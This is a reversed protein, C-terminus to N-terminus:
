IQYDLIQKAEFKAWYGRDPKTIQYHKCWKAIAVDSVGLKKSLQVASTSWILEHLESKSPRVVKRRNFRMCTMCFKAAKVKQQGCQCFSYVPNNIKKEIKQPKEKKISIKKRDKICNKCRINQCHNFEIGCVACNKRNKELKNKIYEEYNFDVKNEAGYIQNILNLIYELNFCLSYHIEYLKWGSSEIHDHRDQYYKKLKGNREYHQNGNIEIGIMKEPFVIDISYNYDSTPTFEELFKYNNERLIKKFNECPESKFKNKSKWPHKDPNDRLFQKRKQSLLKKTEESPKKLYKNFCSFCCNNKNGKNISTNCYKCNTIIKEHKEWRLRTGAQCSCRRSCYHNKSALVRYNEKLFEKSCLSCKVLTKM